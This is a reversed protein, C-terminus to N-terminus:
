RPDLPKALERLGRQILADYLSLRAPYVGVIYIMGITPYPKLTPRPSLSIHTPLAISRYGGVTSVFPM